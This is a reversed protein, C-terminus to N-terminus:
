ASAGSGFRKLEARARRFHQYSDVGGFMELAPALDIWSPVESPEGLYMGNSCFECRCDIGHNDHIYAVLTMQSYRDPKAVCRYEGRFMGGSRGHRRNFYRVYSTMVGNMLDEVGGKEIQFLALHFHNDLIAFAVLRVRSHLPRYARGRLDRSLDRTLYRTVMWRFVRKDEDDVFMVQRNQERNYVHYM